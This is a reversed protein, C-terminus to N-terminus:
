SSRTAPRQQYIRNNTYRPRADVGTFASQARRCTPTSTTCATSTGNYIYEATGIMGWFLRQDVAINTRWLQPFTFDPDTLALEYSSAPRAPSTPRSTRTRYRSQVAADHHQETGRLRDARRHQRDPELDVRVGPKGTFIGTGGRVQTNRNEDVAWNFGVRPSWLIKPDPLKGTSYQM